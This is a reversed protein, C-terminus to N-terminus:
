QALLADITTHLEDSDFHCGTYQIVGEKDIVVQRPISASIGEDRCDIAYADLASMDKDMLIPYTVSGLSNLWDTMYGYSSVASVGWLVFDDDQYEQWILELDPVESGCVM